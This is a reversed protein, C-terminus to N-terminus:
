VIWTYMYAPWKVTVLYQQIILFIMYRKQHICISTFVADQRHLHDGCVGYESSANNHLRQRLKGASNLSFLSKPAAPMIGASYAM